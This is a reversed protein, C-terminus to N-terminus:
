KKLTLPYLEMTELPVDTILQVDYGIFLGFTELYYQIKATNVATKEEGTEEDKIKYKTRNLLLVDGELIEAIVTNFYYIKNDIITLNNLKDKEAQGGNLELFYLIFELNTTVKRKATKTTNQKKNKM